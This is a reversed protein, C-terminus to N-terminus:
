KGLIGHGGFFLCQLLFQHHKLLALSFPELIM